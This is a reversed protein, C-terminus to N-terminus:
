GTGEPFSAYVKWRGHSARRCEQCSTGNIQLTVFPLPRCHVVRVISM